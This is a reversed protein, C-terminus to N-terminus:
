QFCFLPGTGVRLIELFPPFCKPNKYPVHHLPTQSHIKGLDCLDLCKSNVGPSHPYCFCSESIQIIQHLDCQETTAPTPCFGWSEQSLKVEKLKMSPSIHIKTKLWHTRKQPLKWKQFLKLSVSFNLSYPLSSEYSRWGPEGIILM